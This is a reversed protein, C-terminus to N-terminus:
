LDFLAPQAPPDYNLLLMETVQPRKVGASGEAAGGRMYATRTRTVVRWGHSEAADRYLPDDFGSLVFRAHELAALRSLLREHDARSFKHRYGEQNGFYPPDLYILTGDRDVWSFDLLDFVDRDMISVYAMRDRVAQLTALSSASMASRGGFINICPIDRGITMGISVRLRWWIAVARDVDPIEWDDSTSACMIEGVRRAMYESKEAYQVKHLFEDYKDRLVAFFNVMLRERDNYVEISARPKNLLVAAGGGFPEVYMHHPPFQSIVWQALKVKGGYYSFGLAM